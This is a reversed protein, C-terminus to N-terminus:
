KESRKRVEHLNRDKENRKKRGNTDEKHRKLVNYRLFASKQVKKNTKANKEQM